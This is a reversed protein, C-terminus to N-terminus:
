RGRPTCRRVSPRTCSSGGTASSTASASSWSRATTRCTAPPPESSPWTPWCTTPRGRTSGPSRSGTGRRRTRCPRSRRARLRRGRPGARAPRGLGDGHWFPLKGPQGPAPTVLVRDHTIDEIRWSSSGLTFVDGVRSEYVMEEDLEGVRRGPGEGSALFVGYLGRDPITGGSTVALRQAGPRGALTDTLRDWVIRRGCSPSSTAPTAARWCTSCRRWPATRCHRRLACGPAGADGARRRALRGDRDHRRGAPGARGAPQGPRAAGRDRGGRMREAVVAATVLDSRFKPFLVGRSVAGVQHGARGVRQLGRRSARRRSWRSSSTSRGWTSASSSALQDRGGRPAAGGQPRGRDAGAAGQEGVRPACPGPRCPCRGVGRGAGHDAGARPRGAARTRRGRRRQARSGAAAVVGRQPTGDATRGPAPLQHLGADLPPRRRPRRGTGGRAALDVRHPRRGALRTRRM